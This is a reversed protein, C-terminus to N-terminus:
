PKGDSAYSNYLIAFSIKDFMEFGIANNVLKLLILFIASKNKSNSLSPGFSKLSQEFMILSTVEEIAQIILCM